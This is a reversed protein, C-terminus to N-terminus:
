LGKIVNLLEVKLLGLSKDTNIVYDSLIKKHNNDIQVNVIKEFDAESINDRKIVRQKQIEYDVDATIVYSCYKNWGMEFLLAVEVFLVVDTKAYKRINSLLKQKLFPHILSELKKLEKPNNFVFNRLIRKNFVGNEFTNPFHKKIIELFDKKYYLYRCWKDADFVVFGADRIINAITTKGCGISGTIGVFKM